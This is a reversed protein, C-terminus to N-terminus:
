EFPVRGISQGYMSARYLRLLNSSLQELPRTLERKLKAMGSRRNLRREEHLASALVDDDGRRYLGDQVCLAPILQHISLAASMPSVPNFLYQDVPDAFSGTQEMLRRAAAPSVVYGAAGVHSARLTAVRRGAGVPSGERDVMTSRLATDLKVIDADAPIWSPDGLLEAADRGLHIDDEFVVVPEGTRAAIEWCQRHSLFCATEGPGLLYFRPEGQRWRDIEAESLQRGDVARMREFPVGAADFITRIRELREPARDLNIVMIKM